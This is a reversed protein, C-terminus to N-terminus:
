YMHTQPIIVPPEFTVNSRVPVITIYQQKLHEGYFHFTGWLEVVSCLVQFLQEPTQITLCTGSMYACLSQIKQDTTHHRVTNLFYLLCACAPQMQMHQGRKNYTKPHFLKHLYYVNPLHIPTKHMYWTGYEDMRVIDDERDFPEHQYKHQYFLFDDHENLAAIDGVDLFYGLTIRSTIEFFTANWHFTTQVPTPSTQFAVNLLSCDFHAFGWTWLQVMQFCIWCICGFEDSSDWQTNAKEWITMECFNFGHHSLFAGGYFTPIVREAQQSLFTAMQITNFSCLHDVDPGCSEFRIVVPSELTVKTHTECDYFWEIEGVIAFSGTWFRSAHFAEFRTLESFCAPLQTQLFSKLKSNPIKKELPFLSMGAFTQSQSFPWQHKPRKRDLRFCTMIFPYVTCHDDQEVLFFVQVTNCDMNTLFTYDVCSITSNQVPNVHKIWEEIAVVFKHIMEHSEKSVLQVVCQATADGKELYQILEQMDIRDSHKENRQVSHKFTTQIFQKLEFKWNKQSASDLFAHIQAWDANSGLTPVHFKYLTSTINKIFFLDNNAM